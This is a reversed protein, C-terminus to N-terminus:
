ISFFFYRNTVYAPTQRPKSIIKSRSEATSPLNTSTVSATVTRNTNSAISGSGKKQDDPKKALIEQAQIKSRERIQNMYERHVKQEPIRNENAPNKWQKQRSLRADQEKRYRTQTVLQRLKLQYFKYYSESNITGFRASSQLSIDNDLNDILITVAM